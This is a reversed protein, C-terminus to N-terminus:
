DRAPHAHPTGNRTKDRVKRVCGPYIDPGCLSCVCGEDPAFEAAMRACECMSYQPYVDKLIKAVQALDIADLNLREANETM